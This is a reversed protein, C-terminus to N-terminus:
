FDNSQELTRVQRLEPQSPNKFMKSKPDKAARADQIKPLKNAQSASVVMAHAAPGMPPRLQSPGPGAVPQNPWPPPKSVGLPRRSHSTEVNINADCSACRGLLARKALFAFNETTLEGAGVLKQLHAIVSNLQDSDAKQKLATITTSHLMDLWNRVDEKTKELAEALEGKSVGDGSNTNIPAPNTGEPMTAVDDKTSEEKNVQGEEAEAASSPAVDTPARTADAPPQPAPAPGPPRPGPAPGQARQKEVRALRDVVDGTKSASQQVERQLSKIANTLNAFEESIREEHRQVEKSLQERHQEFAVEPGLTKAMKDVLDTQIEGSFPGSNMSKM